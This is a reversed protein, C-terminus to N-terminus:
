ENGIYRIVDGTNKDVFVWLGGGRTGVEKPGFYVSQYDKDKLEPYEQEPTTPLDKEWTKIKKNYTSVGSRKLHDKIKKNDEDYVINMDEAKYGLEKAKNIATQLVQGKTLKNKQSFAEPIKVKYINTKTDTVLLMSDQVQLSIIYIYNYPSEDSFPPSNYVKYEWIKQGNEDNYAEVYGIKFLPATFKIGNYIIPKVEPPLARKALAFNSVLLLSLCITIIKRM